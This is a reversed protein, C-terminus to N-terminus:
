LCGVCMHQMNNCWQLEKPLEVLRSNILQLVKLDGSAALEQVIGTVNVPDMWQEYTKPAPDVDILVLCPCLGDNGMRHAYAVCQAYASCVSSSSDICRHTYIMVFASVTLFPLVMYKSVSKQAPPQISTTVHEREAYLLKRRQRIRVEIVRKLRYCFSLNMGVRLIFDLATELRLEEFSILFLSIQSPDAMLRAQRDFSGPELYKMYLLFKEREFDFNKYSYILVSLPAIVAFFM